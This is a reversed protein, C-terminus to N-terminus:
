RLVSDVGLPNNAPRLLPAGGQKRPLPPPGCRPRHVRPLAGRGGGARRAGRADASRRAICENASCLAAARATPRSPQTLPRHPRVTIPDMPFSKKKVVAMNVPPVDPAPGLSKEVEANYLKYDEIEDLEFDTAEPKGQRHADIVREKFKRLKRKMSDTVKDISAYMDHTKESARMVNGKVTFV